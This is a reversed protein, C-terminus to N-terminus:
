RQDWRDLVGYFAVALPLFWPRGRYFPRSRFPLSAYETHADDSGLMRQAVKHGLWSARAVGTGNYGCAFFMGEHEGVHPFKDFTFGLQGHWYHSIKRTELEPFVRLLLGRLYTANALSVAEDPKTNLVRGGFIIRTGDPSPRYYTVVRQSGALMRRKPMLRDMVDAPLAETAIIGSAVPIIRRQLYTSLAGTYGNTAILVQKAVVKRGRVTFGFGGSQAALDSVRAHSFVAAGAREAAQALGQVYRAPHIGCYGPMAIGGHYLDTGVEGHQEARAVMYADCPMVAKIRDIYRGLGDYIRPTMAGRFYGVVKLDCDIQERAVVDKVHQLSRFSEEVIARATQPGHAMGSDFFAWGPGLLGGNRSSAGWGPAEAEFVAVQKGAKALTLAANLGTFGGGIVAVEVQAPIDGEAVPEPKAAEWWYPTDVADAAFFSGTLRAM